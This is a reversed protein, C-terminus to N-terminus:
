SGRALHEVAPSGLQNHSLILCRINSWNSLTLQEILQDAHCKINIVLANTQGWGANHLSSFAAAFLGHLQSHQHLQSQQGTAKVIYATTETPSQLGLLPAAHQRLYTAHLAALIEFNGHMPRHLTSGSDDLSEPQTKILSLNPWNGQLVAAVDAETKM